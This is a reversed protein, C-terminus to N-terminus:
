HSRVRHKAKVAENHWDTTFWVAIALLIMHIWTGITMGFVLGRVGCFYSDECLTGDNRVFALYYALPVGVVWYAILVIPVTVWQRGTGKVIGNIAVQVGDAFVYAALLPITKSTEKTVDRENPAFLAPFFGHPIIMLAFGIGFSACAACAISNKGAFKAEIPFGRGLLNAVRTSASVSFAVPFMFCFTNISQYITMAGLAVEPFPELRGSLFISIESAWWESIVVIGPLALSGYQIFGQFSSVALHLEQKWSIGTGDLVGMAVLVRARASKTGFLRYLIYAPQITQFCVTAVACGLYGMNMYNVFFWNFPVHFVLGLVAAKAPIIALNEGGSNIAQVWATLTWSVSYSWLGPALIKLYRDTMSAVEHEQGLALLMRETGFLWWVGIPIVIALQIILGRFLFILPTLPEVSIPTTTASESDRNKFRSCLEGKAQGTLTTLAASLGVSFSLGTVNCLTTSLAAAALEHSGLGSVFRISIIWPIKTIVM